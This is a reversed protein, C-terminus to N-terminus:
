PTLLKRWPPKSRASEGIVKPWRRSSFPTCFSQIKLGFDRVIESLEALTSLTSTQQLMACASIAKSVSNGPLGLDDDVRTLLEAESKAAAADRRLLRLVCTVLRVLGMTFSNGQTRAREVGQAIPALDEDPHGLHWRCLGIYILALAVSDWGHVNLMGMSSRDGAVVQEFNSLAERFRGQWYLTDGLVFHAEMDLAASQEKHAIELLETALEHSKALDGRLLNLAWFNAVVPFAQGAGAIQPSIQYARSLANEAESLSSLRGALRTKSVILLLAMETSLRETSDPINQLLDLAARAHALAEDQHSRRLAQEGSLRMYEVAKWYHRSRGYHRALEEFQDELREASLAEIAMAVWEHLMKRRELLVSNYAVEQTLAHKFIYEIDPFAPQEYIFEGSQLSALMHELEAESRDAVCQVLQLRFERGIVALIQLLDKEDAPLRDIRSALVSQVTAPVKVETLPRMLKVTGNRAVAGQEFLAQVMEEIFFPNGETREAILRRLPELEAGEGARPQGGREGEGAVSRALPMSLLADLMENASERRLPDLCLQTYYTRSGWDHQYEPRYNVLLLIRANAIADVMCSLFAQTESDIWHLDEFIVILPQNLSERLLIRKVAEHTRRRKIQADIQALPDDSSNLSLLTFM